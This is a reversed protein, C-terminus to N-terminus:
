KQVGAFRTFKAVFQLNISGVKGARNKPMYLKVPRPDFEMKSAACHLFMVVDADQEISGSDRLDSLQPTTEEGRKEIERNMQHAAVVPVDFERALSKLNRSIHTLADKTERGPGTMLGLYDVLIIGLGGRAKMQVAKARLQEVSIGSRDFIAGKFTSSFYDTAETYRGWEDNDMTGAQIHSSDIGAYICKMRDDYEANSMEGTWVLARVGASMAAIASKQLLASKGQGPRAAVIYMKGPKYGGGLMRDLDSIGTQIGPMKGARHNEAADIALDYGISSLEDFDVLDGSAQEGTNTVIDAIGSVHAVIEDLPKGAGASQAIKSSLDIIKKRAAREEVTRAYELGHQSTPTSTIADLLYSAGGIEAFLGVRDLESCVTVYDVQKGDAILRGIADYIMGNRRIHFATGPLFQAMEAYLQPDILLSGIVSKEVDFIDYEVDM